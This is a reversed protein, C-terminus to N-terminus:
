RPVGKDHGRFTGKGDNIKRTTVKGCDHFLAAMRPLAGMEIEDLVKMTHGWVDLDHHPNMQDFGKMAELEEPLALKEAVVSPREDAICIRKFNLKMSLISDSPEM